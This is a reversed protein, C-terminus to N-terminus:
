MEGEREEWRRDAEMDERKEGDLSKPFAKHKHSKHGYPTTGASGPKTDPQLPRLVQNMKDKGSKSNSSWICLCSNDRQEQM